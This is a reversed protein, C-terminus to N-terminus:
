GHRRGEQADAVKIGPATKELDAFQGVELVEISLVVVVIPFSIRDTTKGENQAGYLDLFGAARTLHTIRALLARGSYEESRASYDRYLVEDGRRFERDDSRRVDARKDGSQMAVFQDTWLKLVHRETV